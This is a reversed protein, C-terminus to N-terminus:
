RAAAAAWRQGRLKGGGLFVMYPKVVVSVPRDNSLGQGLGDGSQLGFAEAHQAVDVHLVGHLLLEADVHRGVADQAGAVRWQRVLGQLRDGSM